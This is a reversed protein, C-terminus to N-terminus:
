VSPSKKNQGNSSNIEEQTKLYKNQLEEHEAAREALQLNLRDKLAHYFGVRDDLDAKDLQEFIKKTDIGKSRVSM